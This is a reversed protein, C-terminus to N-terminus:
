LFKFTNSGSFLERSDEKHFQEGHLLPLLLLLLLLLVLLPLLLLYITLITLKTWNGIFDPIKGTFQNDPSRLIQLNKLNAFTSPIGGSLGASDIYFEQLNVLQWSHSYIRFTELNKQSAGRYHM